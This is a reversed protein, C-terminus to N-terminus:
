ARKCYIYQANHKAMQQDSQHCRHPRCQVAPFTTEKRSFWPIFRQDGGLTIVPETMQWLWAHSWKPCSQKTSVSCGNWKSSQLTQFRQGVGTKLRKLCVPFTLLSLLLYNHYLKPQAYKNSPHSHSCRCQLRLRVSSLSLCAIRQPAIVLTQEALCTM